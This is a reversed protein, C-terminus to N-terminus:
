EPWVLEEDKAFKRLENELSPEEEEDSGQDHAMQLNNLFNIDRDSDRDFDYERSLYSSFQRAFTEIESNLDSNYMIGLVSQGELVQTYLKDSILLGIACKTNNTGRYACGGVNYMSPEQRSREWNQARFGAVVDNFLKQKNM